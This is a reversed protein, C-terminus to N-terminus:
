KKLKVVGHLNKGDESKIVIIYEGDQVDYMVKVNEGLKIEKKCMIKFNNFEDNKFVDLPLVANAIDMYYINHLHDNIDILNRNVLFNIEGVYNEPEKMKELDANKLSVKAEITYAEQIETNLRCIKKKKIDILVWKSSAVGIVNGSNDLIEFDRYAYIKDIDRAWTRIMITEGYMPRSLIKIDYNLLVWSKKKVPIDNLGYGAINSHLGGADEFYALLATNTVKNGLGVDRLGIFVQHEVFM